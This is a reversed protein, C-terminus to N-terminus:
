TEIMPETAEYNLRQAANMKRASPMPGARGRQTVGLDFKKVGTTSAHTRHSVRYECRDCM